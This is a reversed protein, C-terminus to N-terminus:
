GIDLTWYEVFSIFYLSKNVFVQLCYWELEFEGKLVEASSGGVMMDFAGSEVMFKGQNNYFGLEKNQHNSKRRIKVHNKWLREVGTRPADLLQQQLDWM